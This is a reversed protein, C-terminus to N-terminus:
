LTKILTTKTQQTEPILGYGLNVATMWATDGNTDWDWGMRLSRAATALDWYQACTFSRHTHTDKSSRQWSGGSIEVKHGGLSNCWMMNSM